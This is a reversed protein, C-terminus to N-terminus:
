PWFRWVIGAGAQFGHYVQGSPTLTVGYGGYFGVGFRHAKPKISYHRLEQTETNPNLNLISVTLARRKFPNWRGSYGHTIELENKVRLERSISDHRAVIWGASWRDSWQTSYIPFRPKTFPEKPILLSTAAEPYTVVTNTVGKDVTTISSVSASLLQGRYQKVTAQLWKVTSDQTHLKLFQRQTTTQFAKITATQQGLKNRSTHLTDALAENVNEAQLRAQRECGNFLLLVLVTVTLAILLWDKPTIQPLKM